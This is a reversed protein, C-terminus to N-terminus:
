QLNKAVSQPFILQPHTPTDSDKRPLIEQTDMRKVKDQVKIYKVRTIFNEM